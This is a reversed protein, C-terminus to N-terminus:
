NASLNLESWWKQLVTQSPSEIAMECQNNEGCKIKCANGITVIMTPLHLLVSDVARMLVQQVPASSGVFMENSRFLKLM